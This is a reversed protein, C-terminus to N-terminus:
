QPTQNPNKEEVKRGTNEMYEQIIKWQNPALSTLLLFGGFGIHFAKTNSIHFTDSLILKLATWQSVVQTIEIGNHFKSCQIKLGSPVSFFYFSITLCNALSFHRTLQEVRQQPNLETRFSPADEISHGWDLIEKSAAWTEKLMQSSSLLCNQPYQQVSSECRAIM